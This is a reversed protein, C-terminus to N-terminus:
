ISEGRGDDRWEVILKNQEATGRHGLHTHLNDVIQLPGWGATYPTFVDKEPLCALCYPIGESKFFESIEELKISVVKNMM